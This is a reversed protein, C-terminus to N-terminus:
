LVDVMWAYLSSAITSEKIFLEDLYLFILGVITNVETKEERIEAGMVLYREASTLFLIQQIHTIDSCSHFSSSFLSSYITFYIPPYIYHPVQAYPDTPIPTHMMHAHLELNPSGNPLKSGSTSITSPSYVRRLMSPEYFCNYM